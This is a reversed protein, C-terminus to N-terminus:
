FIYLLNRIEAVKEVGKIKVTTEGGSILVTANTFKKFKKLEEYFKKRALDEVDLEINKFWSKRSLVTLKAFIM